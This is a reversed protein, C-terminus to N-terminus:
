PVPGREIAMDRSGEPMREARESSGLVTTPAAAIPAQQVPNPPRRAVCSLQFRAPRTVTGLTLM